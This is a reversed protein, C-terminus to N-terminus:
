RGFVGLVFMGVMQLLVRELPISIAPIVWFSIGITLRVMAISPPEVRSGAPFLPVAEILALMIFSPVESCVATSSSCARLFSPALARTPLPRLDVLMLTLVSDLFRGSTISITYSIIVLGLNSSAANLRATLTSFDDIWFERVLMVERPELAADFSHSPSQM